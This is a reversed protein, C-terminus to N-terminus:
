FQFYMFQKPVAFFLAHVVFGASGGIVLLRLGNSMYRAQQGFLAVGLGAFVLVGQEFIGMVSGAGLTPMSGVTTVWRGIGPLLEALQAPLVIGNLGFMGRYIAM